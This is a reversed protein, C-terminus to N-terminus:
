RKWGEAWDLIPFVFLYTVFGVGIVTFFTAM